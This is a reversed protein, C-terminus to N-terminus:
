TTHGWNESKREKTDTDPFLIVSYTAPPKDHIRSGYQDNVDCPELNWMYSSMDGEAWALMIKSKLLDKEKLINYGQVTIGLEGPDTGLHGSLAWLGPLVSDWVVTEWYM